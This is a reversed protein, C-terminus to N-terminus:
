IRARRCRCMNVIITSSLRSNMQLNAKYEDREKLLEVMMLRTKSALAAFVSLANRDVIMLAVVRCTLREVIVDQIIDRKVEDKAITGLEPTNQNRRLVILDFTSPKGRM